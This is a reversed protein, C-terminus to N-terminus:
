VCLLRQLTQEHEALRGSSESNIEELGLFSRRFFLATSRVESHVSGAPIDCFHLDQNLCEANRGLKRSVQSTWLLAKTDWGPYWWGPFLDSTNIVACIEETFSESRSSSANMNTGEGYTLKKRVVVCQIIATEM